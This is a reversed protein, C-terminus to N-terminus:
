RWARPFQLAAGSDGKLFTIFTGDSQRLVISDELRSWLADDYQKYRGIRQEGNKVVHEIVAKMQMEVEPTLKGKDVKLGFEEGAERLIHQHSKLKEFLNNGFQVDRPFERRRFKAVYELRERLKSLESAHKSPEAASKLTDLWQRLSPNDKLLGEYKSELAAISDVNGSGGSSEKGVKGAGSGTASMLSPGGLNVPGTSAISGPTLVPGGAVVGGDAMAMAPAGLMPPRLEIANAVKLGKGVNARVGAITLAAMAISVLMKLFKQSAAALRAEDGHATWALILWQQGHGIAQGCAEIAVSAGFAALGLQIAAAALQGVGTPTAALFASASEALIFGATIGIIEPLHEKIAEAYEGAVAGFHRPAGTVSQVLDDIHGLARKSKAYLGGTLSGDPVQGELARAYAPSVLWIRRGAELRINNAGDGLLNPEQFTGEIGARGKERNVALLVNEYYRLDHGDRVAASFEQVALREAKDGDRLQYLKATPEPLDTNVRFHQVYGRVITGPLFATVYWWDSTQPHTGSVFVRTAPPLPQPTLAVGQLEAPGTRINSGDDNDIFGPKNVGPQPPDISTLGPAAPSAAPAAAPSAASQQVAALGSEQLAADGRHAADLAPLAHTDGAGAPTEPLADDMRAQMAPAAARDDGVGQERSEQYLDPCVANALWRDAEADRHRRSEEDAPTRKQQVPAPLRVAGQSMGMTLTRKGPAVVPKQSQQQQIPPGQPGRGKTSDM